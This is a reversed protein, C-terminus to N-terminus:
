IEEVDDYVDGRGYIDVSLSWESMEFDNTINAGNPANEFALEIAEDKDDAEVEVIAEAVAYLFVRYNPM